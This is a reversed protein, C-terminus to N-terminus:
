PKGKGLGRPHDNDKAEKGSGQGRDKPGGHEKDKGGRHDKHKSGGKGEKEEESGDQGDTKLQTTGDDDEVEAPPPQEAPPVIVPPPPTPETAPPTDGSGDSGQDRGGAGFGPPPQPSPGVPEGEVTPRPSGGSPPVDVRVPPADVGPALPSAAGGVRHRDMVRHGGVLALALLSGFFTLSLLVAIASARKGL